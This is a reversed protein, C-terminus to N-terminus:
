SINDVSNLRRHTEDQPEFQPNSQASTIKKASKRSMKLGLGKAINANVHLELLKRSVQMSAKNRYRFPNSDKVIPKINPNKLGALRILAEKLHREKLKAQM